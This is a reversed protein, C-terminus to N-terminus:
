LKALQERVETIDIDDIPRRRYISPLDKLAKAREYIFAQLM